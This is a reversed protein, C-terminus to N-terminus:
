RGRGREVRLPRCNPPESVTTNPSLVFIDVRRNRQRRGGRRDRLCTEGYARAEVRVRRGRVRALLHDRVRRARRLSLTENARPRGVEDAHGDVRLVVARTALERRLPALTRRATPTLDARGFQFGVNELRSVAARARGQQGDDDFVKLVVQAVRNDRRLRTKFRRGRHEDVGDVAWRYRVIRGDPDRSGRGDFHVIAQRAQLRVRIRATPAQRVRLMPQVAGPCGLSVRGTRARRPVVFTLRDGRRQTVRARVRGVSVSEADGVGPGRVEVEEGVSAAAKGLTVGEFDRRIAPGPTAAGPKPKAGPPLRAAQLDALMAPATRAADAVDQLAGLAMVSIEKRPISSMRGSDRRPDDGCGITAVTAIHVRDDSEAVYLGQWGAGAPDGARVIALPQMQPDEVAQLVSVIAGFLTVSLFVASGYWAFVGKTRDAVLHLALALLAAACVPAAIWLEGLLASVGAATVLTVLGVFVGGLVSLEYRLPTEAGAVERVRVGPRTRGHIVGGMVAFGVVVALAALWNRAASQEGAEAAVLVAALGELTALVVLSWTMARSPRGHRDVLRVTLVALAGGVGFFVLAVAGITVLESRSVADVAQDAPLEAAYFRTWAIAGGALAVFGVFGGATLLAAAVQTANEKLFEKM